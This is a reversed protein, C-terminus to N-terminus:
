VTIYSLKGRRLRVFAPADRRDRKLRFGRKGGLLRVFAPVVRVPKLALVCLRLTALM